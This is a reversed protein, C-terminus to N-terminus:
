MRFRLGMNMGPLRYRQVLPYTASTIKQTHHFYRAEGFLEIRPTLLYAMGLNVFPSINIKKTFPYDASSSASSLYLTPEGVLNYIEAKQRFRINIAVGGKIYPKWKGANKFEYGFAIPIQLFRYHNFTKKSDITNQVVFATDAFFTTDGPANLLYSQVVTRGITDKTTKQWNFRENISNYEAGGELFLGGKIRFGVFAGISAGELVTESAKRKELLSYFETNETTLKKLPYQAGGYIGFYPTNRKKKFPYCKNTTTITAINFPTSNQSSVLSIPTKLTPFEHNQTSKSTSKSTTETIQETQNQPIPYTTPTPNSQNTPNILTIPKNSNNPTIDNKAVAGRGGINRSREVVLPTYGLNSSSIPKTELVINSNNSVKNRLSSPIHEKPQQAYDFCLPNPPSTLRISGQGLNSGIVENKIKKTPSTLFAGSDEQKQKMEEGGVVAINKTDIATKATSLGQIGGVFGAIPEIAVPKVDEKQVIFVAYYVGGVLSLGVLLPWFWILFRRKKDEKLQSEINGWLRETDMPSAYTPLKENAQTEINKM